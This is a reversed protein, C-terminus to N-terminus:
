LNHDLNTTNVKPLLRNNVAREVTICDYDNDYIIAKTITSLDVGYDSRLNYMMLYFANLWTYLYKDTNPYQKQYRSVYTRLDNKYEDSVGIKSLNKSIAALSLNQPTESWVALKRVIYRKIKPNYYYVLGDLKGSYSRIMDKFYAKM